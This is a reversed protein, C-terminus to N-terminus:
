FRCLLLPVFFYRGNSRFTNTYVFRFGYARARFYFVFTEDFTYVGGEDDVDDDDDDVIGVRKKHEIAGSYKVFEGSLLEDYATFIVFYYGGGGLSRGM